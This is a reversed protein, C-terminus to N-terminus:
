RWAPGDIGGFGGTYRSKQIQQFMKRFHQVQRAKEFERSLGAAQGAGAPQQRHEEQLRASETVWDLREVAGPAILPSVARAARSASAAAAAAANGLPNDGLVRAALSATVGPDMLMASDAIGTAGKLGKGRVESIFKGISSGSRNLTTSVARGAGLGYELGPLSDGSAAGSVIGGALALSGAIGAGAAGRALSGAIGPAARGLVAAPGGGARSAAPGGSPFLGQEGPAGARGGAPAAGRGERGGGLMSGMSFVAGMGLASGIGATLGSDALGLVGRALSNITPLCLLCVLTVWFGGGNLFHIFFSLGVAAGAPMFVYSAFERIWVALTNRRGPFIANVLVVPLIGVLIAIFVKRVAFQFNLVGISLCGILAMLAAGLSRTEKNYVTHLFSQHVEEAVISHCVAVVARNVDFFFGLLYPGLRVLVACLIIGAIYGRATIGARYDASKFLLLLGAVAVGAAMFVPLAQRSSNYFDAIVGFEERTYINWVLHDGQPPPKEEIGYSDDLNVGFVLELPDYLGIVEVLWNPLAMVLDAALREPYDTTKDYRKQRESRANQLKEGGGRGTGPQDSIQGAGTENGVEGGLPVVPKNRTEAVGIIGGNVRYFYTHGPKVDQDYFEAVARGPNVRHVFSLPYLESGGIKLMTEGPYVRENINFHWHNTGKIEWKELTYETVGNQSDWSVKVVNNEPLLSVRLHMVPMGPRAWAPNFCAATLFFTAFLALRKITM